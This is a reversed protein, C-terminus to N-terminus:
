VAVQWFFRYVVLGDGQLRYAFLLFSLAMVVCKVIFAVQKDFRSIANPLVILQGFMFYFSIREAIQVETYRMLYFVAGLMTMFFFFSYDRDKRRKGSFVIAVVLIIIYIAVAVFGGAEVEGEYEREFLMNGIAALQRSFILLLGSMGISLIGTRINLTFGYIFYIIAFVIASTHFTTALLVLLMFPLFKRKKCFEIAFLCISMAMSQRLGQAMFTYLGLCIYMVFSLEPDDSNIYIFKCVAVTFLIASLIFVAQGSPFIHSFVWVFLLYGTEFNSEITFAKFGDFSLSSLLEWNEFYNNSDNSGVDKHRLAIMMFMAIGCWLLFTRRAKDNFKISKKYGFSVAMSVLVPITAFFLYWFM